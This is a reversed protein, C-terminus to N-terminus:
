CANSIVTQLTCAAPDAHQLVETVQFLCISCCAMLMMWNGNPLLIAVATDALASALAGQNANLYGDHDIQQIGVTTVEVAGCQSWSRRLVLCVPQVLGAAIHLPRRAHLMPRSVHAAQEYKRSKGWTGQLIDVAAIHKKYEDSPIMYGFRILLTHCHTWLMCM